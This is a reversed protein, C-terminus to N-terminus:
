KARRKKAKKPKKLRNGIYSKSQPQLNGLYAVRKVGSFAIAQNDFFERLQRNLEPAKKRSDRCQANWGTKYAAVFDIPKTLYKFCKEHYSKEDILKTVISPILKVEDRNVLLGRMQEVLHEPFRDASVIVHSHPNFQLPFFSIVKMEHAIYAGDISSDSLLKQITEENAKWYNRADMAGTESLHIGGDYGLTIHYFSTKLYTNKFRTWANVARDNACKACLTWNGCPLKQGGKKYGCLLVKSAKVNNSAVLPLVADIYRQNLEGDFFTAKELANRLNAQINDDFFELNEEIEQRDCWNLENANIPAPFDDDDPIIEAHPVISSVEDVQAATSSTRNKIAFSTTIKPKIEPRLITSKM